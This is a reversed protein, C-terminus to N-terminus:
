CYFLFFSGVFSCIFSFFYLSSYKCENCCVSTSCNRCFSINTQLEVTLWPSRTHLFVLFFNYIFDIILSGIRVNPMWITFSAATVIGFNNFTVCVYVYLRANMCECMHQVTFQLQIRQRADRNTTHTLSYKHAFSLFIGCLLLIHVISRFLYVLSYIQLFIWISPDWHHLLHHWNWHLYRVLIVLLCQCHILSASLQKKKVCSFWLFCCCINICLNLSTYFNVQCVCKCVQMRENPTWHYQFLFFWASCTCFMCVWESLLTSFLYYLFFPLITALIMRLLYECVFVGVCTFVCAFTCELNRVIEVFSEYM